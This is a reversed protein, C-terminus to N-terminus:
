GRTKLNNQQTKNWEEMTMSHVSSYEHKIDDTDFMVGLSDQKYSCSIKYAAFDEELYNACDLCAKYSFSYSDQHVAEGCIDCVHFNELEAECYECCDDSKRFDIEAVYTCCVKCYYEFIETKNKSWGGSRKDYYASGIGSQNSPYYDYDNDCWNPYFAGSSFMGRSYRRFSGNSFWRGESKEGLSENVITINKDRDLFVLKNYNHGILQNIMTMVSKNRTFNHPLDKMFVENFARTDSMTGATEVCSIVGNHCFAVNDNVRFPHVNEISNAGHTGIRFHLVFPTDKKHLDFTSRFSKKFRDFNMFKKIAINGSIPNVYMFGAGDDNNDWCNKLEEDSITTGIPLVCIICM